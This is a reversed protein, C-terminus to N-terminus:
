SKQMKVRTHFVIEMSKDKDTWTRDFKESKVFLSAGGIKLEM